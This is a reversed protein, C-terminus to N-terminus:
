FSFIIIFGLFMTVFLLQLSKGTSYLDIRHFFHLSMSMLTFYYTFAEFSVSPQEKWGSM